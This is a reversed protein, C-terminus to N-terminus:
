IGAGQKLFYDERGEGVFLLSGGDVTDRGVGM